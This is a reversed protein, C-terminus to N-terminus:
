WVSSVARKVETRQVIKNSQKSHLKNSFSIYTMLRRGIWNQCKVEAVRGRKSRDGTPDTYKRHGWQTCLVERARSGFGSQEVSSGSCWWGVALPGGLLRMRHRLWPVIQHVLNRMGTRKLWALVPGSWGPELSEHHWWGWGSPSRSKQRSWSRSTSRRHLLCQHFEAQRTLRILWNWKM